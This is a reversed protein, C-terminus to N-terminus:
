SHIGSTCLSNRGRKIENSYRQLGASYLKLPIKYIIEQQLQIKSFQSSYKSNKNLMITHAM